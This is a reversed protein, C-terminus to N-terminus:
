LKRVEFTVVVKKQLEHNGTQTKITSNKIIFRKGGLLM